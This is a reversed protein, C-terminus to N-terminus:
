VVRRNPYDLSAYIGRVPGTPLTRRYIRDTRKLEFTEILRELTGDESGDNVVVVEFQGYNVALLSRVTDIINRAENYAPVIISIPWTMESKLIQEYDSFFTRKVFRVVEFLSVVFLLLYVTNLTLFYYIVFENFSVVSRLLLAHWNVALPMMGEGRRPEPRPQAA